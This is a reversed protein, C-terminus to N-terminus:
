GNALSKMMTRAVAAEAGDPHDTLLKQLTLRADIRDNLKMFAQAESLLSASAFRGRPYRM